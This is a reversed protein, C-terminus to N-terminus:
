KPWVNKWSKRKIIRDINEPSVNYMKSYQISFSRDYSMEVGNKMIKGVDPVNPRKLYSDIINKVDDETLKSKPNNEGSSKESLFSKTEKSHLMYGNKNKNWPVNGKKVGGVGPRKVGKQIQSIFDVSLNMRKAIMVCAGYDGNNYHIDYHEKITVCKLNEIRNDKHDGNIHHIEFPRGDSDKPIEGFHKKWITRYNM